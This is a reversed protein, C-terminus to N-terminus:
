NGGVQFESLRKDLAAALFAGAGVGALTAAIDLWDFRYLPRVVPVLQAFEVALSIGATLFSARAITLRAFRGESSLLVLLLGAPGLLSPAIDVFVDNLGGDFRRALKAPLILVWCTAGIRGYIRKLRRVSPWTRLDRSDSARVM